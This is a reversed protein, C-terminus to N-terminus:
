TQAVFSFWAKIVIDKEKKKQKLLLYPLQTISNIIQIFYCFMIRFIRNPSTM